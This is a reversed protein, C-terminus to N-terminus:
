SAILHILIHLANFSRCRHLAEIFFVRPSFKQQVPNILPSCLPLFGQFASENLHLCVKEYSLLKKGRWNKACLRRLNEELKSVSDNYNANSTRGEVDCRLLKSLDQKNLTLKFVSKAHLRQGTSM